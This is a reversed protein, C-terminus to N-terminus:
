RPFNPFDDDEFNGKFPPIHISLNTGRLTNETEVEQLTMQQNQWPQFEGLEVALTLQISINKLLQMEGIEVTEGM